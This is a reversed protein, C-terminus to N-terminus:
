PTWWHENVNLRYSYETGSPGIISFMDGSLIYTTELLEDEAIMPKDEAAVGAFSAYDCADFERWEANAITMLIDAIPLNM